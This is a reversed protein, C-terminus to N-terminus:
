STLGLLCLKNTTAVVLVVAAVVHVIEDRAYIGTCGLAIVMVVGGVWPPTAFVCVLVCPRVSDCYEGNHVLFIPLKNTTTKRGQSMWPCILDTRM